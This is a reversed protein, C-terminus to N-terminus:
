AADRDGVDIAGGPTADQIEQILHM